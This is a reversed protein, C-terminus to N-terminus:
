QSAQAKSIASRLARDMLAAAEAQMSPLVHSYVDLTLGVTSHGLRESVIKPHVGQRLLQTAHSHRLDHFRFGSIGVKRVLAVFSHTLSSPQWPRGDEMPYVLDGDTYSAGARLKEQAQASRHRKLADITIAPLAVVRRSHASKPEKFSLGGATQQLSRRVALSGADLDLDAWRLALIEGRRLGTTLALLVPMHLRTSKATELLKATEGDDLARVEKHRPRPPQVADAANRVVLQWRVAQHLAGRLLRHHHLVTQPSLGGKNDRRGQELAYSYYEQIHLPHLKALSFHGLHPILHKRAIEAYREFTKAAVNPQAYDKLWRELYEAVTMKSPHVYTGTDLQHLLRTLERQADKKTGHITHWKQHRKGSADRGLDIVVAWSRNSRQRIHGKM